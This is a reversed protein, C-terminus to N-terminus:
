LETLKMTQLDTGMGGYNTVRNLSLGHGHEDELVEWVEGGIMLTDGIRETQFAYDTQFNFGLIPVPQITDNVLTYMTGYDFMITCLDYLATDTSPLSTLYGSVYVSTLSVNYSGNITNLEHQVIPEKECSAFAFLSLLVLKKM